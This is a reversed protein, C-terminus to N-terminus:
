RGRHALRQTLETALRTYAAAARSRRAYIVLPMGHSPAELARPDEPIETRCVGRRNHTRVIQVIERTSQQRSNVRTLVIGAVDATARQTVRRDRYWRFFSALSELPLYEARMCVLLHEVALPVSQAVISFDGPADVIVWDYTASL